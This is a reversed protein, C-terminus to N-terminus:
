LAGKMLTRYTAIADHGAHEGVAWRVNASARLAAM